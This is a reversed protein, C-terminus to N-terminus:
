HPSQNTNFPPAHAWKRWLEPHLLMRIFLGGVVPRAQFGVQKADLTWYWDTLPLRSPSQDAFDYIPDIFREFDVKSDALSATWITWDFLTYTKRDDFPLGYKNLKTKYFALEKRAVAPPFLNLGLVRDWILNHKQSWTGPQDFALRYHDGDDAKSVWINAWRHATSLYLKAETERHTMQCLQGYAGLGLIAKISLDTNHPLRGSMDNTALQNEPDLGKEKLYEAWKKFLPWYKSAFEANGEIRALAATMILMNGSEEVPMQNEETEERGGYVQGNAHPYTGLDHPAFSFRWRGSQAYELVPRLQAKLLDPSFLLFFPSSPYLVDVTSICGNSFNEKPFMLWQGDADMAIKNGGLTQRYALAGLLAYKDGGTNRLDTMLAADFEEGEKLLTPFDRYAASLLKGIGPLKARWLPLLRRQFYDISFLDDYALVLFRQEHAAGINGLAFECALVPTSRRPRNSLLADNFDDDSPLRGKEQFSSRSSAANTTSTSFDAGTGALYFYGWDIRLDDGAKALIPQQQSGVRLVKLDQVRMRSWTVPEEKTNVAVDSSADFYLSVSHLKGDIARVDWVLYTTPRALIEPRSPLAPTFFTLKLEIGSGAFNYITRTPLVQVSKQPLAAMNKPENGMLRYTAGDIRTLGTLAQPKGTWHRTSDGTLQDAMSWISFYPDHVVLPVAPPRFQRDQAQISSSVLCGIFVICCRGMFRARSITPYNM